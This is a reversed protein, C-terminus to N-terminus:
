RVHQSRVALRSSLPSKLHNALFERVVDYSVHSRGVAEPEGSRHRRVVAPAGPRTQLAGNDLFVPGRFDPRDPANFFGHGYGEILYLEVPGDAAALAEYLLVSQSAPVAADDAGHMILFPPCGAKVYTIPNAAAALVPRTAPVAGLLRAEFAEPSPDPGGDLMTLFDVPGYGDVVAAVASSVGVPDAEGPLRAISSTTGALAALHGGASSGWVAIRQPDLGFRDANTRLWRIAARVDHLQAPFVAQHSLRYDISVMVYGDAAFYTELDPALKRDGNAWGGGHLFVVAPLPGEEEAPRVVDALLEAGDPSAFVETRIM